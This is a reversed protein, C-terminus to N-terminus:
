RTSEAIAKCLREQRIEKPIDVDDVIEAISTDAFMKICQVVNKYVATELRNEMLGKYNQTYNSMNRRNIEDVKNVTNYFLLGCPLVSFVFLVIFIRMSLRFKRLFTIMSIGNGKRM